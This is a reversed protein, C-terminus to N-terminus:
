SIDGKRPGDGMEDDIWKQNELLQIAHDNIFQLVKNKDDQHYILHLNPGADLTFAVRAKSTNRWNKLRDIIELTNPKMLVFWEKGSMMLAHLELAETELMPIFSEWDGKQLIEIMQDCKNNALAFRQDKYPHEKMLKHGLSSSVEKKSSDIILVADGMREFDPHIRTVQTGYEKTTKGWDVFGGYLSRSASGSGMRALRSAERFFHEEKIEGMKLLLECLCLNIAGMSSASSAIGASHPFTNSTKFNFSFAELISFEDQLRNIHKLLKTEFNLDRKGEFLLSVSGQRDPTITMECDTYCNKLTMSVSANTPLQFDVKGWYKIFAINSPAQWKFQAHHGLKNLINDRNSTTM